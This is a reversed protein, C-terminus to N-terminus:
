DDQLSRPAKRSVKKSGAVSEGPSHTAAQLDAVRKELMRWVDRAEATSPVARVLTVLRYAEMLRRTDLEARRNRASRPFAMEQRFTKVTEELVARPMTAAEPLMRVLREDDLRVLLMARAIDLEDREVAERLTPRRAIRVWSSITGMSLRTRERIQSYTLPSRGQADHMAALLSIARLRDAQSLERRQANEILNLVFATDRDAIRIVCPARQIGALRAARYRRNGAILVYSPDHRRGLSSIPIAESAHIPRVILPQLFGVDRLSAALEELSEDDYVTRSNIEEPTLELDDLDLYVIDKVRQEALEGDAILDRRDSDSIAPLSPRKLTLTRAV